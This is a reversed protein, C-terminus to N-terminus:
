VDWALEWVSWTESLGKDTYQLGCMEDIRQAADGDCEISTADLHTSWKMRPFYGSKQFIFVCM